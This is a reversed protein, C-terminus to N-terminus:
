DIPGTWLGCLETGVGGPDAGPGTCGGGDRGSALSDGGAKYVVEIEEVRCGAIHEGARRAAVEARAALERLTTRKLRM